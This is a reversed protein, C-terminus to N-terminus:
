PQWTAFASLLSLGASQSKEPHFQVGIVPGSGVITPFVSGYDGTALVVDDPLGVPHYSHVHYFFETQGQFAGSLLPHRRGPATLDVRAWGVHPVPLTTSFRQVRGPLLGLGRARPAEDSLEFFLQLGLCIGMLPRGSAAVESVAQGLGTSALTRSAQGFNGVGPLLVRGARRVQDPHSVLEASHGSARLARVVSALNNVGYDVVAIV